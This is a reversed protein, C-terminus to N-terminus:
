LVDDALSEVVGFGGAPVMERLSLKRHAGDQM